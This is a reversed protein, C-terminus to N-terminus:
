DSVEQANTTGLKKVFSVKGTREFYIEEVEDLSNTNLRLRLQEDIDNRTINAEKMNDMNFEGKEYLILWKGKVVRGIWRHYFSLGSLLNHIVMITVGGAVASLFPTAGIIGRALVAGLLITLVNDFIDGKGFSRMGSLRIMIVMIVFMVAARAACELLGIEEKIGWIETLDMIPKKLTLKLFFAMLVM